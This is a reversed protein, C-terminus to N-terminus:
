LLDPQPKREPASALIEVSVQPKQNTHYEVLADAFERLETQVLHVNFTRWSKVRVLFTKEM